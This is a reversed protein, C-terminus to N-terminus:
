VEMDPLQFQIMEDEGELESVTNTGHPRALIVEM